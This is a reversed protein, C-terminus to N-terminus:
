KSRNHFIITTANELNFKKFHLCMKACQDVKLYKTFDTCMGTGTNVHM